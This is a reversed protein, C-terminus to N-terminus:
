DCYLLEYHGHSAQDITTVKTQQQRYMKVLMSQVRLGKQATIFLSWHAPAALLRMKQDSGSGYRSAAGSGVITNFM